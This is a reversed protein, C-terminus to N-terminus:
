IYFMFYVYKCINSICKSVRSVQVKEEPKVKPGGGDRTMIETDIM